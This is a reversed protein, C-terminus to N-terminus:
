EGGSLDNGKHAIQFIVPLGDQVKISSVEGSDISRLIEILRKEFPHLEMDIDM